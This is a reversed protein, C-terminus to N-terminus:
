QPCILYAFSTRTDSALQYRQFQARAQKDTLLLDLAQNLEEGQLEGDVLASLLENQNVTM